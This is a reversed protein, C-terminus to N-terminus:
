GHCSGHTVSPVTGSEATRGVPDPLGPPRCVYSSGNSCATFYEDDTGVAGSGMSLADDEEAENCEHFVRPSLLTPGEGPMEQALVDDPRRHDAPQPLVDDPGHSGAALRTLDKTADYNPDYLRSGADSSNLESPHWRFSFRVGRALAYAAIRRIQVLLGFSRARYRECALIVSM